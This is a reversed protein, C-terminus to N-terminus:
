SKAKYGRPVSKRGGSKSFNNERHHIKEHKSRESKPIIKLNSKANNKSSGDIHHVISEKPANVKERYSRRGDKYQSNGPGTMKKSIKRKTEETQKRLSEESSMEEEM